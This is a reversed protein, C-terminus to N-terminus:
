AVENSEREVLHSHLIEMKRIGPDKIVGRAVQHLWDYDLGTDRSIQRYQGRYKRLLDITEDYMRRGKLM